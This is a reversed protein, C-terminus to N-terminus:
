PRPWCIECEWRRDVTDYNCTGRHGCDSDDVCTDCPTRCFYGHGCSNGCVCPVPSGNVSCYTGSDPCLAANGCSCFSDLTSPSCYVGPGCDSDVACNSATECVNPASAIGRCTCPLGGKCDSDALCDDYSCSLSAVPGPEGCRGNPGAVCDSDQACSGCLCVSGDPRALSSQGGDPCGCAAPTMAARPTTCAAGSSQHKVPVRGPAVPSADGISPCSAGSGDRSAVGGDSGPTADSSPGGEDSRVTADALPGGGDAGDGVAVSGGCGVTVILLAARRLSRPVLFSPDM